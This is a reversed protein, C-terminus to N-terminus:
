STNNRSPVKPRITAARRPAVTAPSAGPHETPEPTGTLQYVVSGDVTEKELLLAVLEMLAGHYPTLLDIARQDAERLLRAVEADIRAQTAEAFPKSSLEAGGGSLFM